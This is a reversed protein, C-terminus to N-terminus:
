VRAVRQMGRPTLWCRQRGPPEITFFRGALVPSVPRHPNSGQTPFIGQFLFRCGMRTNKGLFNQPCLLSGPAMLDCPTPSSFCGFLLQLRSVVGRVRPVWSHRSGGAVVKIAGVGWGCRQLCRLIGGVERGIADTKELDTSSSFLSIFPYM